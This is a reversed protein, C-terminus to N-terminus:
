ERFPMIPVILSIGMLDIAVSFYVLCLMLLNFSRPKKKDSVVDLTAGLAVTKAAMNSRKRAGGGIANNSNGSNRSM